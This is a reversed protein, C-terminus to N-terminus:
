KLSGNEIVQFIDKLNENLKEKNPFIPLTQGKVKENLSNFEAITIDLLKKNEELNLEVESLFYNYTLLSSLLVFSALLYRKMVIARKAPDLLIPLKDIKVFELGIDIKALDTRIEEDELNVIAVTNAAWIYRNIQSKLFSNDIFITKRTPNKKFVGIWGNEKSDRFLVLDFNNLVNIQSVALELSYNEGGNFEFYYGNHFVTKAFKVQKSFVKGIVFKKGCIFTKNM